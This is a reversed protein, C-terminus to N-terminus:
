KEPAVKVRWFRWFIKKLKRKYSIGNYRGGLTPHLPIKVNQPLLAFTKQTMWPAAFFRSFGFFM